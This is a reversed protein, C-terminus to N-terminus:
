LAEILSEADSSMSLNKEIFKNLQKLTTCVHIEKNDMDTIVYGNNVIDIKMKKINSM